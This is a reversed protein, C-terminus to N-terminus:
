NITITIDPLLQIVEKEEFEVVQGTKLNVGVAEKKSKIDQNEVCIYYDNKHKFYDGFMAIRFTNQEINRDIIEVM